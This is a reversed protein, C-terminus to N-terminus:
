VTNRRPDSLGRNEIYRSFLNNAQPYCSQPSMFHSFEFTIAKDLNAEEAAKLKLLFKEWKIPPFKIPMDRDFSELNTWSQMGYKHALERNISLYEALEDFDVHGDQFALMDVVGKVGSLIEEWEREHQEPTTASESSFTSDYDKTAKKGAIYPSILVPLGGSLSKCHRGLDAYIDVIGRFKGSVECSLYFGKFAPSSGYKEWVESVVDKSIQIEKAYKGEHWYKGSDYTGFFFGMGFEESLDLFLRVLDEPPEFCDMERALVRSPYTAWRKHGCRILIVTDIGVAKMLRFDERWEARGWNQAPIDHSIEDLFTGTILM